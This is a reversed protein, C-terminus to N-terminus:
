PRQLLSRDIELQMAKALKAYLRLKRANDRLREALRASIALLLKASITPEENILAQLAGRTLIACLSDASTTCSASRPEQDVLGVEGVLAGPGLVKITLPETSSVTVSEVVVEGELLLAMFGEDAADGEKIFTTHAPIFRPTMYGVVVRAEELTLHILANPATLLEAAAEFARVRPTAPNTDDTM